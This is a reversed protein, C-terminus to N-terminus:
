CRTLKNYENQLDTQIRKLVNLKEIFRDPLEKMLTADVQADVWEDYLTELVPGRTSAYLWREEKTIRKEISLVIPLAEKKFINEAELERAKAKNTEQQIFIIHQSLINIYKEITSLDLQSMKKNSLNVIEEVDAQEAIFIKKSKLNEVKKEIL